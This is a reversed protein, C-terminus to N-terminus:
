RARPAGRRRRHGAPRPAPRPATGRRSVARDLRCPDRYRRQPAGRRPPLRMALPCRRARRLARARRHRAPRPRV